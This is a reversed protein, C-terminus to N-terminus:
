LNLVTFLGAMGMVVETPKDQCYLHIFRSKDLDKVLNMLIVCSDCIKLIM